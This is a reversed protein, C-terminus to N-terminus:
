ASKASAESSQIKQVDCAMTYGVGRVTKIVKPSSPDREIKKRLRAIQNDITRDLPSWEIGGTLDMLQDRSLVRKPRELFVSLLKFDGSTLGCDSNKRDLLELRDPIATMGDFCFASSAQLDPEPKAAAHLLESEIRGTRRLVSRIRATVERVHFPKTIYDDAGVELGVVRDIVDDKGTVMVIPVQSTRRIDRALDVGNDRGLHIDLTILSIPTQALIELAEGATEAERVVFGDDELVNCLLTRIKPDDDVILITQDSM